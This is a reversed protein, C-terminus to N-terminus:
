PWSTEEPRAEDETSTVADARNQSQQGPREFGDPMDGFAQWFEDPWRAAEGEDNWGM